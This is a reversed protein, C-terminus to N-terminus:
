VKANRGMKSSRYAADLIEVARMAIEGPSNNRKTLGLILEVFQHPPEDCQYAGDGSKLPITEHRGEHTHLSLHDRAIDVVLVGKEGFIRIDLQFTGPTGPPLTAAGSLNGIAGGAFRVSIADYMDVRAGPQSMNAFVSEARLGTLWLMLGIAHSLQGQGFGGHSVRPDAWTSLDPDTYASASYDFSKGSFLNKLASAMHGLVFEIRGVSHQDMLERAKVSLPRYHWGYPVVIHRHKKKALAVIQRATKARTTFPKEVMVHCGARLAALAHEAHLTHPSAVIVGDLEQKLLERYDTTVHQFGFDRQCRDLIAKDLGCASVMEVDKRARLVPMHNTTAWWGAGIFGIRAKRTKSHPRNAYKQIEKDSLIGVNREQNAM